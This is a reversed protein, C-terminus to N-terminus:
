GRINFSSDTGADTIKNTITGGNPITKGNIYNRLKGTIINFANTVTTGTTAQVRANDIFADDAEIYLCDTVTGAFSPYIEPRILAVNSAATNIHVKHNSLISIHATPGFAIEIDSVSIDLDAGNVTTVNSVFIRDGSVAAALADQLTAYNNLGSLGVFKTFGSNLTIPLAAPLPTGGSVFKYQLNTFSVGSWDLYFNTSDYNVIITSNEIVRRTNAGTDWEIVCYSRIDDFSNLGHPVTTASASSYWGSEFRNSVSVYSSGSSPLYIARIEIYDGTLLTMGTFDYSITSANKDTIFSAVDLAYKKTTSLDYFYVDVNQPEGDLAHTWTGTLSDGFNVTKLANQPAGFVGSIMNKTEVNNSIFPCNAWVTTTPMFTAIHIYRTANIQEPSNTRTTSSSLGGDFLVIASSADKAVMGNVAIASGLLYTDVYAYYTHNATPTSPLTYFLPTATATTVFYQGNQLKMFGAAFEAKGANTVQLLKWDTVTTNTYAIANAVTGNIGNNSSDYWVSSTIMEPSYDIIAGLRIVSDTGALTGTGTSIFETGATNNAAGMTTFDLTNQALIRYRKGIVLVYGSVLATMSGNIDAYDIVGGDSYRSATADDLAYNFLVAKYISGNWASSDASGLKFTNSAGITDLTLALESGPLGNLYTKVKNTAYRKVIATFPKDLGVVFGTSTANTVGDGSAVQLTGSSASQRIYLGTSGSYVSILNKAANSTINDSAARVLITCPSTGLDIATSTASSIISDTAGDFHYNSGYAINDQLPQADFLYESLVITDLKLTTWATANTGAIHFGVRYTTGSGSQFTAKYKGKVKNVGPLATVVATTLDIVFPILDNAIYNADTFDYDFELYLLKSTDASDITIDFSVGQGQYNVASKIFLFSGPTRLPSTASTILASGAIMTGSGNSTLVLASGGVTASIQFSGGTTNIVYYTTNIVIGTTTVITLFTVPTNNAITGLSHSVTDGTDVFTCSDPTGTGDVPIVGATDKYMKWGTTTVGDNSSIYNNVGSGGPEKWIVGNYYKFKHTNSEYALDAEDPLPVTNLDPWQEFNIGKKVRWFNTAM